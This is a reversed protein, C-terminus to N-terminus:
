DAFVHPTYRQRQWQWKAPWTFVHPTHTPHHHEHQNTVSPAWHQCPLLGTPVLCSEVNPADKRCFRNKKKLFHCKLLGTPVQCYGVNPAVLVKVMEAKQKLWRAPAINLFLHPSTPFFSKGVKQGVKGVTGRRACGIPGFWFFIQVVSFVIPLLFYNFFRKRSCIM